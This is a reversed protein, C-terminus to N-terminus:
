KVFINTMFNFNTRRIIIIPVEFKFVLYSMRSMKICFKYNLIREFHGLVHSNNCLCSLYYPLIDNGKEQVSVWTQRIRYVKKIKQHQVEPRLACCM